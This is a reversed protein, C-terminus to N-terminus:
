DNCSTPKSSGMVEAIREHYRKDDLFLNKFQTEFKGKYLFSLFPHFVSWQKLYVFIENSFKSGRISNVFSTWIVKRFRPLDSRLKPQMLSVWASCWIPWVYHHCDKKNIHYHTFDILTRIDHCCTLLQALTLTYHKIIRDSETLGYQDIAASLLRRGISVFEMIESNSYWALESFDSNLEYFPKVTKPVAPTGRPPHRHRRAELFSTDLFIRHGKSIESARYASILGLGTGYFAKFNEKKISVEHIDGVSLGGQLIFADNINSVNKEKNLMFFNRFIHVVASKLTWIDEEEGYLVFSDSFNCATLTPNQSLQDDIIQILHEIKRIGHIPNDGLFSNKSGLIDIYAISNKM